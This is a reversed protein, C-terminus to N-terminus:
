FAQGFTLVWNYRREDPRGKKWKFGIDFRLPGIPTFFRLGFGTGTAVNDTAVDAFSDGSLAGIDQFIVIGAKPAVPIRLEVNINIMSKGGQPVAHAKGEDDIFEGTPPALDAEYSRISNSGGLYFRENPMIDKFQKHFIHGFRVRFAAVMQDLPVFWSHEILLKFFYAKSFRQPTPFMGKCSFLTFTGSTPYLNNDLYDLMLTPEFFLYAIKQDLLRADFNIARALRLAAERTKLDDDSFTTRGVEFGANMGFDVTDNKHRLGCLFGNQYLTYLNKKSGIYGPQEYKVAYGDILGDLPVSFIWPYLYKLHVERHSRAVDADFRFLDAHNTINKVMFTGGVKYAVGAFTQYQRVHQFEFGARVRLEFPDDKRIKLLLDRETSGEQLPLPMFSITDFVNLSKLRGFSTKLLESNWPAGQAYRLERTIKEFPVDSNSQVITKGFHVQAGPNVNWLLLQADNTEVLESEISPFLYGEKQLQTVLFRKQEQVLLADYPIPHRSRNITTFPGQMEYQEYGPIHVGNVVTQPGECVTIHLAYKNSGHLRICEQHTIEADLFGAKIYQNLLLECAHDVYEQDYLAHRKLRGFCHARLRREPLRYVDKLIIKTVHARAGESIIFRASDKEDITEISCDWFGKKRYTEQIEQALIASPVISSSRGFQLVVDLLEQSAFFRNGEFQFRRKRRVDVTWHLLVANRGHVLEEQVLSSTHGYGKKAFTNKLAQKQQELTKQSYKTHVLGRSLQQEIMKQLQKKEEPAVNDDVILTVILKRISFRKGRHITTHVRVTKHSANRDFSSHAAVDFFGEQKCAEKIKQISHLHQEMDFPDGPEMVYFQKYWEKGVWVGSIKIGDFRWFGHLFFHVKKGDGAPTLKLIVTDFYNKQFLYSIARQMDDSSVRMGVSLGTLDFCEKQSITINSGFSIDSLLFTDCEEHLCHAQKADTFTWQECQTAQFTGCIILLFIFHIM